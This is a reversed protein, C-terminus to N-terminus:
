RAREWVVFKKRNAYLLVAYCLIFQDLIAQVLLNRARPVLGVLCLAALFLSIPIPYYVLSLFTLFVLAVFIFPMFLSLLIEPIAIKKPLKLRKKVLLRLCQTWLGTLHVARRIKARARERTKFPMEAQMRAEPVLIARYGNQIIRLATGSDDAGSESDFEQFSNRKFACFCGEFRITSHIKSEGLRWVSMMGLYNKEANTVWSQEPNKLQAVGSLAGITSDAMYPLAKSLIDAPWIVDADTVVVIGNAHACAGLAANLGKAKGQRNIQHLIKVQLDPNKKVFEEAKALTQDTSADDILIVEMKDKPYSVAKLNELRSLINKEENFAPVLITVPPRFQSDTELGWSGKARHRLYLFYLLYSGIFVSLLTAWLYLIM